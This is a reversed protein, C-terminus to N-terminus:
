VSKHRTWPRGGMWHCFGSASKVFPTSYFICIAM